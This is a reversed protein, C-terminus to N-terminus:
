YTQGCDLCEYTGDPYEDYGEYDCNPCTVPEEDKTSM